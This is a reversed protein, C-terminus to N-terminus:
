WYIKHCAVYEFCADCDNVHQGAHIKVDNGAVVQNLGHTQNAANKTHLNDRMDADFKIRNWYRDQLEKVQNELQEIRQLLQKKKM